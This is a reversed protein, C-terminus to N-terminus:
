FTIPALGDKLKLFLPFVYLDDDQKLVVSFLRGGNKDEVYVSDQPVTRCLRLVSDTLDCDNEWEKFEPEDQVCYETAKYAIMFPRTLAKRCEIVIRGEDGDAELEFLGNDIPQLVQSIHLKDQNKATMSM